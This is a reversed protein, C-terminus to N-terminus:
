MPNLMQICLVKSELKKSDKERISREIDGGNSTKLSLNVANEPDNHAKECIFNM